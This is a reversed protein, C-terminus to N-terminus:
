VLFDACADLRQTRHVRLGHFFKLFGRLPLIEQAGLPLIQEIGDAVGLLGDRSISRTDRWFNASAKSRM